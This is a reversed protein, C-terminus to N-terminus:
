SNIIRRITEHSTSAAEAIARLSDGRMFAERIMTNYAATDADIQRKMDTIEELM